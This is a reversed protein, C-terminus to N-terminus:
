LVIASLIRALNLIQCVPQGFSLSVVPRLNKLFRFLEILFSQRSSDLDVDFVELPPRVLFSNTAQYFSGPISYLLSIRLFHTDVFWRVTQLKM